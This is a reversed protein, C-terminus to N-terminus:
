DKIDCYDLLKSYVRPTFNTQKGGEILAFHERTIGIVEAAEAQTQGRRYRMAKLVAGINKITM